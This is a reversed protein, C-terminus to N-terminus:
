SNTHSWIKVLLGFSILCATKMKPKSFIFARAKCTGRMQAHNSCLHLVSLYKEPCRQLCQSLSRTTLLGYSGQPPTM